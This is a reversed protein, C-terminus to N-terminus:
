VGEQEIVPFTRVVRSAEVRVTPALRWHLAPDFPQSDEHEVPLWTGSVHPLAHEAAPKEPLRRSVTKIEGSVVFAWVRGEEMFDYLSGADRGAVAAPDFGDAQLVTRVGHRVYEAHSVGRVKAAREAQAFLAPDCRAQLVSFAEAM